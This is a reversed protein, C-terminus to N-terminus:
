DGKSQRGRWIKVPEIAEGACSAVLTMYSTRHSLEVKTAIYMSLINLQHEYKFTTPCDVGTVCETTCM